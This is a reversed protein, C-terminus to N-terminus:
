GEGFLQFDLSVGKGLAVLQTDFRAGLFTLLSVWGRKTNKNTAAHKKARALVLRLNRM